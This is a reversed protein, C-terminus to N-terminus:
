LKKFDDHCSKCTRAINDLQSKIATVDGSRSVERLKTTDAQFREILARFIQKDRWITPLAKTDGEHSGVIFGEAANKSLADLWGANREAEDRTFPVVGKAQQSLRDYHWKMMVMAAKRYRIADETRVGQATAALSQICIMFGVVAVKKCNM